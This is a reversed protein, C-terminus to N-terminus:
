KTVPSRCRRWTERVPRRSSVETIRLTALVYIRHAELYETGWPEKTFKGDQDRSALGPPRLLGSGQPSGLFSSGIRSELVGISSSISGNM